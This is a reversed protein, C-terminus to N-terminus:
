QECKGLTPLSGKMRECKELNLCLVEWQECERLTPLSGKMRECKELHLYLVERQKCEEFISLSGSRWTFEERELLLFDGEFVRECREKLREETKMFYLMGIAVGTAFLILWEFKGFTKVETGFMVVDIPLAYAPDIPKSGPYEMLSLGAVGFYTHFVDVANDPEKRMWRAKSDTPKSIFSSILTPNKSLNDYITDVDYESFGSISTLEFMPENYISRIQQKPSTISSKIANAVENVSDAMLCICDRINQDISSKKSKRKVGGGIGSSPLPKKTTGTSNEIVQMDSWETDMSRDADVDMFQSPEYVSLHIQQTGLPTQSNGSKAWEGTPHGIGYVIELEVYNAIAINLYAADKPFAEQSAIFGFLLSSAFKRAGTRAESSFPAVESRVPLPFTM